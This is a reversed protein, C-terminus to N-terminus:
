TRHIRQANGPYAVNAFQQKRMMQKPVLKIFFFLICNLCLECNEWNVM